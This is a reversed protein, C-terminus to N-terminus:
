TSSKVFNNLSTWVYRTGRIKLEAPPSPESSCTRSIPCITSLIATSFSDTLLIQVQLTRETEARCGLMALITSAVTELGDRYEGGDIFLAIMRSLSSVPFIVPHPVQTGAKVSASMSVEGRTTACIPGSGKRSTMSASGSKSTMM